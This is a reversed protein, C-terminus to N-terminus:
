ILSNMNAGTLSILCSSNVGAMILDFFEHQCRYVIEHQCRSVSGKMDPHVHITSYM